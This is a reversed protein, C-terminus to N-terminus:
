HAVFNYIIVGVLKVPKSDHRTPAFHAQRAAKLSVGILLPHGGVAQAAIVKGEEDLVVKVQVSGSARAQRAITPYEPKPLSIARGNIVLPDAGPECIPDTAACSGLVREKGALSQLLADVEGLPKSEVETLKFSDLFKTVNAEYFDTRENPNSSPRGTNFAVNARTIIIAQYLREKVLFMRARLVYGDKDVLLERGVIGGLTVDSESLLRGGKSLAENRASDLRGPNPEDSYWPLDGYMVGYTGFNTQLIYSHMKIRGAATEVPTSEATPVGPMLVTFRGEASTFEKWSALNYGTSPVTPSVASPRRTQSFSLISASALIFLAVFYPAILQLRIRM